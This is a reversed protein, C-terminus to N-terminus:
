GESPDYMTSHIAAGWQTAISNETVVSWPNKVLPIAFPVQFQRCTTRRCRRIREV